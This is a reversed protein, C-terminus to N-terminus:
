SSGSLSRFPLRWPLARPTRLGPQARHVAVGRRRARGHHHAPDGRDALDRRLPVLRQVLARHLAPHDALRYSVSGVYLAAIVLEAFVLWRRQRWVFCAVVGIVLFAALVWEAAVVGDTSNNFASLVAQRPTQWLPWHQNDTM